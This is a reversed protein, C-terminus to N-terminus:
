PRMEAEVEYSCEVLYAWGFKGRSKLAAVEAKSLPEERAGTGCVLAEFNHAQKRFAREFVEEDSEVVFARELRRVRRVCSM